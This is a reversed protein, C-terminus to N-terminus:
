RTRYLALEIVDAGLQGRVASLFPRETRYREVDPQAFLFLYGLTGFAIVVFAAAVRATGLRIAAFVVGVAITLWVVGLAAPEPLPPLSPWPEPLASRPIVMAGAGLFGAAATVWFGVKTLRRAWPALEDLPTALLRGILLAVAPLIPLLY